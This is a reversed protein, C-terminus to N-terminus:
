VSSLLFLMHLFDGFLKKVGLVLTDDFKYISLLLYLRYSDEEKVVGARLMASYALLQAVLLDAEEGKTLTGGTQLNAMVQKLVANYEVRGTEDVRDPM